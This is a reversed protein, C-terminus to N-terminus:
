RKALALAFATCAELRCEVMTPASVTTTQLPRIRQLGRETSSALFMNSLNLPL